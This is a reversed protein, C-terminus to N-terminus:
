AFIDIGYIGFSKAFRFQKGNEKFSCIKQYDEEEMNFEAAGLNEEMRKPNSTSPIPVVGTHIHWNLIIQGETKGYKKALDIILEEKFLDLKKEIIMNESKKCYKGKALPNYAVIKIGEKDCLEKLDKQYFYPNFEIENVVPKIKCFSLINFINQANYNSVGISKTLGGEVLKEMKTWFEVFSVFKLNKEGNYCKGTPWHDLYLDVYTLNLRELSAKLAKEPDDKEELWCKTIIFLEERKIIGEDIAQKIGKGVEVENKYISATDILRVGSKISEYVIKSTDEYQGTGLGMIPISLGNNLQLKKQSNDSM